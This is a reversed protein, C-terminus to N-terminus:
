LGTGEARKKEQQSGQTSTLSKLLIVDHYCMCIGCAYMFQHQEEATTQSSIRM